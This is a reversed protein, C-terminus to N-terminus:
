KIGCTRNCEYIKGTPVTKDWSAEVANFWQISKEIGYDLANNNEVIKKLQVNSPRADSHLPYYGLWCCPYVEGNSSIYIEKKKKTWCDIKYNTTEERVALEPDVKYHMYGNYLTNFDTSGTYNGIVHSLKKDPTFVPMIDRGHDVLEFQKFGLDKSLQKCEDIQPANHDFKIMAWVANGGAEIFKGANDLIFEYDTNQRYLKHTNALGDLRFNVTIGLKGLREWIKPRASANTSIHITLQPNVSLFYEVIEVGDRATVFDGYNGNINIQNLQKLFDVTFIKQAQELSMDCVPYTDLVDVGRYNRLCDPCAANCRSSIELHVMRIDAYNLMSLSPIGFTKAAYIM